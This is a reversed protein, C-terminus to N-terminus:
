ASMAFQLIRSASRARQRHRGQRPGVVSVAVSSGHLIDILQRRLEGRSLHGSSHEALALEIASVMEQAAESSDRHMNWSRAVLWDEFDDLSEKGALYGVLRDRIEDEHIM